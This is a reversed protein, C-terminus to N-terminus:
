LKRSEICSTMGPPKIAYHSDSLQPFYQGKSIKKKTHDMKVAESSMREKNENCQLTIERSFKHSLTSHMDKGNGMYRSNIM